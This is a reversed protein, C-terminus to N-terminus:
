ARSAHVHEFRADKGIEACCRYEVIVVFLLDRSLIRNQAYSSAHLGGAIVLQKWGLRPRMTSVGYRKENCLQIGYHSTELAYSVTSTDASLTSVTHIIYTLPVGICLLTERTIRGNHANQPHRTGTNLALVHGLAVGRGHTRTHFPRPIYACASPRPRPSSLLVLSYSPVVPLYM